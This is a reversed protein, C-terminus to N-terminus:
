DKKPESSPPNGKKRERMTKLYEEYKKFQESTLIEKMKKNLEERIPKAKENREQRDLSPDIEAMKKQNEKLAAEVKPKQDDTLNLATTLREVQREINMGKKGKKPADQAPALTTSAILGVLALVAIISSKAIKM